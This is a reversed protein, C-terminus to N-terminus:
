RAVAALHPLLLELMGAHEAYAEFPVDADVLGSVAALATAALRADGCRLLALLPVLLADLTCVADLTLRLVGGAVRLRRM